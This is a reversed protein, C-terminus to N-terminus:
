FLISVALSATMGTQGGIYYGFSSSVPSRVIRILQANLRIDRTNAFFWNAGGLYEHSTRFGAGEQPFVWSTAGYLELRHKVPYCAAQVYFGRDFLTSLPVPGTARLQDLWRQMYEAGVFIGRYKLGADVEFMQYRADTVTVDPALAGPDFLNLSDALRITTNDPAAAVDATFRNELSHTYAVGFRTALDEHWEYDDFGGHPGFEHTTPMWWVTGSLAFNRTLQGSTIGLASLNDGIMGLYWLGPVVEGSAWVGNTFFPRFFEDAMVRDHGLWYPHNGVLTRTGPLGNLGGYLSFARHFQYGVVAFLAKQDTTNVTWLTIQYVLKPLGLWGKLHVMIRHAYIDHRADVPHVRGLHDTFTQGSPMQNLYRVLAYASISLEGLKTRGIVFGKGPEVAGWSEVRGPEAAAAPAAASGGLTFTGACGDKVWIEGADYGWTKGLLCPTTGTAQQLAVGGSTDAPCRQEAGATSACTVPAPAAGAAPAAALM